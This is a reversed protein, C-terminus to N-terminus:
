DGIGLSIIYECIGKIDLNEEIAYEQYIEVFLKQEEPTLRAIYLIKTQTFELGYKQRNSYARGDALDILEIVEPTLTAIKLGNRITQMTCDEKEAEYRTFCKRESKKVLNLKTSKNTNTDDTYNYHQQNVKEDRYDNKDKNEKKNM